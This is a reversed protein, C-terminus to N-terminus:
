GVAPPLPARQEPDAFLPMLPLGPAIKSRFITAGLVAGASTMLLLLTFYTPNIFPRMTLDMGPSVTAPPNLWSFLPVEALLLGPRSWAAVAASGLLGGALTGAATDLAPQRVRLWLLVPLWLVPCFAMQSVTGADRHLLPLVGLMGMVSIWVQTSLPLMGVERRGRHWWRYLVIPLSLHVVGLLAAIGDAGAWTELGKVQGALMVGLILVMVGWPRMKNGVEPGSGDRIVSKMALICGGLLVMAPAAWTMIGWASTAAGGPLAPAVLVLILFAGGWLANLRRLAQRWGDGQWLFGAGLVAVVVGVWGHAKAVLLWSAPWTSLWKMLETPLRRGWQRAIEHTALWELGTVVLWFVLVIWGGTARKGTGAWPQGVREVAAVVGAAFLGGLWFWGLSALFGSTEAVGWAWGAAAGADRLVSGGLGVAIVGMSGVLVKGFDPETWAWGRLRSRVWWGGAGLVAAWGLWGLWISEGMRGPLRSWGSPGAALYGAGVAMASWWLGAVALHRPGRWALMSLGVSLWWVLLGAVIPTGTWAGMLSVGHWGLWIGAVWYGGVPLGSAVAVGVAWVVGMLLIFVWDPGTRHPGVGLGNWVMMGAAALALGVSMLVCFRGGVGLRRWWGWLPVPESPPLQIMRCKDFLFGGPSLPFAGIGVM